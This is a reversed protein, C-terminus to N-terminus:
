LQVTHYYAWLDGKNLLQPKHRFSVGVQVCENCQLEKCHLKLGQNHDAVTQIFNVRPLCSGERIFSKCLVSIFSAKVHTDHM